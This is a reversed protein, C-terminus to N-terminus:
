KTRKYDIEMTMTEKGEVKEYVRRIHHDNGEIDVVFKVPRTKGSPNDYDRTTLTVLKGSSDANGEAVTVWTGWTDVWAVVYKQSLEDYGFLGQANFPKGWVVSDYHEEIFRGGLVSKEEAHGTAQEPKPGGLWMKSTTNFKGVLAQLVQHHADPTANKAIDKLMEAKKPDSVTSGEKATTGQLNAASQAAAAGGLLLWISLTSLPRM